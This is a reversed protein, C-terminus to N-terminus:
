LPIKTTLPDGGETPDEVCGCPEVNRNAGCHPCLGKCGPGCLPKLPVLLYIQERTMESLDLRFGDFPTLALDDEELNGETGVKALPGSRFLRYCDGSVPLKVPATCRSCRLSVVAEVEGRFVVDGRSRRFSGAVRVKELPAAEGAVAIPQLELPRDIELGEPPIKNVELFM